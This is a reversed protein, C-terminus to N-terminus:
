SRYMYRTCFCFSVMTEHIVERMEYWEEQDWPYNREFGKTIEILGKYVSARLELIEKREDPAEEATNEDLFKQLRKFAEHIYQFRHLYTHDQDSEHLKIQEQIWELIDSHNEAAM